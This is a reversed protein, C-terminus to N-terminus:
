MGNSQTTCLQGGIHLAAKVVRTTASACRCGVRGVAGVRASVGYTRVGPPCYLSVGRWTLVSRALRWRPTGIWVSICSYPTELAM